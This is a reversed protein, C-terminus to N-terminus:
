GGSNIAKELKDFIQTESDRWMDAIRKKNYTVYDGSIGIKKNEKPYKKIIKHIAKHARLEHITKDDFEKLANKVEEKILKHFESKKM